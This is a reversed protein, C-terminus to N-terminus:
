GRVRERPPPAWRGEVTRRGAGARGRTTAALAAQAGSGARGGLRRAATSPHLAWWLTATVAAIIAGQWLSHLLAAAVARVTVDLLATVTV